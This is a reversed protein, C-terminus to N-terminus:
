KNGYDPLFVGIGGFEKGLVTRNACNPLQPSHIPRGMNSERATSTVKMTISIMEAIM